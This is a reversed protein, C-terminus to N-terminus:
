DSNSRWNSNLLSTLIHDEWQGNIMLYNRAYGEVVFGLRKLLLGSRENRPMYSAMIRHLNLDEFSYRIAATLAETMYGRGQEREALSYGLACSYSAGWCIQTLNVKGILIEPDAQKFLGLKVSEGWEFELVGKQVQEQWFEQTYFGPPRTPEVQTLFDKNQLYYDLISPVDQHFFLRLILRPTQLVPLDLNM